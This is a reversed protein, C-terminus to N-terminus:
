DRDGALKAAEFERFKAGLQAAQADGVHIVIRYRFIVATGPEIVLDGLRLRNSSASSSRRRASAVRRCM